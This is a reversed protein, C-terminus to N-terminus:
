LEQISVLRTAPVFRPVPWGDVLVVLIPSNRMMPEVMAVCVLTGTIRERNQPDRGHPERYVVACRKDGVAAAADLMAALRGKPGSPIEHLTM